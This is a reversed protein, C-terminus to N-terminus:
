VSSPFIEAEKLYNFSPNETFLLNLMKGATNIIVFGPVRCNIEIIM